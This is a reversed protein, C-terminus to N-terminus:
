NATPPAMAGSVDAHLALWAARVDPTFDPGLAKDLCALLALGGAAYYEPVVGYSRHRDGLRQAIDQYREADQAAGILIAIMDMLKLKQSARDTRFLARADPALRFLEDYFAEFADPGISLLVRATRQVLVVQEPSM